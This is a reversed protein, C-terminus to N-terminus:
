LPKGMDEEAGWVSLLETLAREVRDLPWSTCVFAEAGCRKAEGEYAAEASVLAIRCRPCHRRLHAIIAPGNESPIEYDIFAAAIEVHHEILAIAEETTKATLIDVELAREVARVLFARKGASDDAVLFLPKM